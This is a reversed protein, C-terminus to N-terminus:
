SVSSETRSVISARSTKPISGSCGRVSSSNFTTSSSFIVTRTKVVKLGEVLRDNLYPSIVSTTYISNVPNPILLANYPYLKRRRNRVATHGCQDTQRHPYLQQAGKWRAILHVDPNRWPAMGRLACDIFLERVLLADSSSKLVGM